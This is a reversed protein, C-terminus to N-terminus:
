LGSFVNRLIDVDAAASILAPDFDSLDQAIPFSLTQDAALPESQAVPNGPPGVFVVLLLAIL